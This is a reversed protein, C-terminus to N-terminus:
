EAPNVPENTSPTEDLGFVPDLEVEWYPEVDVEWGFTYDKFVINVKVHTNRFLSALHELRATYEREVKRWTTGDEPWEDWFTEETYVTLEYEQLKLGSGAAGSGAAGGEETGTTKLTRSEPLYASESSFTEPGVESLAPLRVSRKFDVRVLSSEGSGGELADPIDYDTLWQYQDINDGKGTKKAEAAMWHIWDWETVKHGADPADTEPLLIAGNRESNVVWYRGDKNKNVHPMLYMRDGVAKTLSFGTVKIERRNSYNTFKFSFKTAARIVYLSAPLSFEDKGIEKRDPIEIEYMATMPIGKAPDYRYVDGISFVFDDIPAKGTEKASTGSSTEPIFSSNSFNIKEGRSDKLEACNALLYIRKRCGARVKFTYEDTLPLGINSAGKVLRSHEVVWGKGVNGSEGESAGGGEPTNEEEPVDNESVIVVLLQNIRADDPIEDARTSVGAVATHFTLYISNEEEEEHPLDFSENVCSAFGLLFVCLLCLGIIHRYQLKM